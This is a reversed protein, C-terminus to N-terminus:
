HNVLWQGATSLRGFNCWPADGDDFLRRALHRAVGVNVANGLQKYITKDAVEAAVFGRFPIDQLRAAERPTVRRWDTGTIQPGLVSTQTIAVLAPLYSPPKVRVGSPRFHAVLGELDRDHSWPQAKRAQWELKRRSPVFEAVKLGLPGWRERRWSDLFGRHENYFASNKRLFDEKWRPTGPGIVPRVRFADVWIPFGPLTEADIGQVFAQWAELWTREVDRIGYISMDVDDDLIDAVSWDDPDWGATPERRALPQGHRLEIASTSPLRRALVFVRDRVQPAGGLDPSLLHPSLVVPEDSVCYGADRLSEVITWWTDEHRPGALNRVNELIVFEPQRALVISMIDFFLTGRTRDRVGHQFGSKSFPQCPFGACLVEHEPVRERVQDLGLDAAGPRPSGRTLRRIDDQIQSPDMEPFSAQYVRRCEEDLEVALVCDGGLDALAHHFGGVGAFLDVFRFSPPSSANPGRVYRSSLLQPEGPLPGGEARLPM